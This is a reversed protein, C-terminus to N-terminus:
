QRCMPPSRLWPVTFPSVMAHGNWSQRQDPEPRQTSIGYARRTGSRARVRVQGVICCFPWNNTQFSGSPLGGGGSTAM